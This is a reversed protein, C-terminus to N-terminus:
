MAMAAIMHQATVYDYTGNTVIICTGSANVELVWQCQGDYGSGSVRFKSELGYEVSLSSHGGPGLSYILLFLVTECWM